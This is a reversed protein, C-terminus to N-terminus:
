ISGKTSLVGKIRGDFSAAECLARGFAKFIAEAIHHNNEGHLVKIHLNMGSNVAVGTFFERLLETDMDGLRPVTFAAEFHLYPRGSLDVACLALTEDMPIVASGYRRIGTKDGLASKIAQGLVIGTDEVTHHGDIEIDGKIKLSLDFFGHRVVQDLMHNFFGIPNESEFKGSGDLNLTATIDTENTTRTITATRLLKM